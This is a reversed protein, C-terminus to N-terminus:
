RVLRGPQIGMAQRVGTAYRDPDSTFKALTIESSFLYFQNDYDLSHQRKGPVAQNEDIAL